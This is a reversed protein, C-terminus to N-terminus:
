KVSCTIKNCSGQDLEGTMMRMLQRINGGPHTSSFYVTSVLISVLIGLIIGSSLILVRRREM